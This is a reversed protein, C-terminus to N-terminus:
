VQALVFGEQWRLEDVAKGLLAPAAKSAIVAYPTGFLLVAVAETGEEPVDVIGLWHGAWSFLTRSHWLCSVM